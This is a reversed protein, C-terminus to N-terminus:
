QRTNIKPNTKSRLFTRGRRKVVFSDSEKERLTKPISSRYKM